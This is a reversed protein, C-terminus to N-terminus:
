PGFLAPFINDEGGVPALVPFPFFFVFPVRENSGNGM